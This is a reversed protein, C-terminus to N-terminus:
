CDIYYGNHIDSFSFTNEKPLYQSWGQSTSKKRLKYQPPRPQPCKHEERLPWNRSRM